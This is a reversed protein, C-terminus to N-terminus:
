TRPELLADYEAEYSAAVGNYFDEDLDVFALRDQLEESAYVADRIRKSLKEAWEHQRKLGAELESVRTLLASHATALELAAVIRNATIEEDDDYCTALEEGNEMVYRVSCAQDPHKRVSLTSSTPTAKAALLVDREATVAAM